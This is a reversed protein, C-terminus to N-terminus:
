LCFLAKGGGISLGDPCVQREVAIGGWEEAVTPLKEYRVYRAGSICSFCQDLQHHSPTQNM